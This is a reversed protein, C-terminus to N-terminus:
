SSGQTLKCGIHEATVNINRDADHQPSVGTDETDWAM